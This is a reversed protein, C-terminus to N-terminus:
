QNRDNHCDNEIDFHFNCPTYWSPLTNNPTEHLRYNMFIEDGDQIPTTTVLVISQM